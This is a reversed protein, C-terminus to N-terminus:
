APEARILTEDFAMALRESPKLVLFEREDWDGGLLRRLLGPDGDLREFTWARRAAIDKAEQEKKVSAPAATAVYALRDYHRTFGAFQELLYDANDEGYRAALKERTVNTNPGFTFDPQRVDDTNDLWGASQFYTGPRSQLEALYRQRGLLMAFCDHARPVAVPLQRAELGVIGRNCLGYALAIAGAEMETDIANQLALRLAEASRQHLGMELFRLKAATGAALMELEPRLSSCAIVALPPM